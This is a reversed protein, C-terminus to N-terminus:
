LKSKRKNRRIGYRNAGPECIVVTPTVGPEIKMDSPWEDPYHVHPVYQEENDKKKKKSFFGM